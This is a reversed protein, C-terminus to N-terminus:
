VGFRSGSKQCFSAVNGNPPEMESAPDPGAQLMGDDRICIESRPSAAARELLDRLRPHLGDGRSAAYAHFQDSSTM